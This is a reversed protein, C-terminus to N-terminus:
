FEPVDTAHWAFADLNIIPAPTTSPPSQSGDSVAYIMLPRPRHDLAAVCAMALAVISDIKKSAKDKAIRWGRPSEVAVTNLAQARVDDAPYVRLNRGNLLDFLTQGMWTTNAATQPFERIPLGATQLTTLSRHFQYPDCLIERVRYGAHLDRLHQELTAELDLPQSPSPRWIRHSALVLKDDRWTVAVVASSDHKTSADVGVFLPSDTAPLLPSLAPDVCPDWLEPTIFISDATTWRNEHLRLYTGPRLTRRQTEYYAPTQWPMRPEHDWYALIRADRHGYVPLAPVLREGQGEPHEDKAVAQRYLDWLLASENEFGAYTTVLRISNTRTPVPTLEEWLRRSSEATYGWLEDWSTFGHNSGAAGAYESAIPTITTGNTLAIQKAGVDASATLAPNHQILGAVAKFVRGQAQELDNAVLLVENPAEQTFAWWLTLAANITTKGSKKPCAYVITDYPLRGARFSFATRLITRQHPLLRFPQGHENRRILDDTFAVPDTRYRALRRTV